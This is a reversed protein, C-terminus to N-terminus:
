AVFLELRPKDRLTLIVVLLGFELLSSLSYASKHKGLILLGTFGISDPPYTADSNPVIASKVGRLIVALLPLMSSSILISM